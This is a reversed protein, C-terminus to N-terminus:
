EVSKVVRTKSAMEFARQKKDTFLAFLVDIFFVQGAFPLQRVFSQGFGIRAGSERVVRLNFLRKGLTYGLLYEFLMTYLPLSMLGVVVFLGMMGQGWWPGVGMRVLLWLGCVVPLVVIGLIFVDSVKAVTRELFSAPVLPIASLYSEALTMPDGLQRAIDDDSQGHEKREAFTARLDLAIRERLASARPLHETVRGIYDDVTATM